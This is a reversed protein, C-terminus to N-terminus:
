RRSKIVQAPVGAVVSYPPVDKTVVSGAAIVSGKGITVGALIVSNSAIWCDDQVVISGKKVGQDKITQVASDFVHNEAYFSVRPSVMVNNGITIMGSCGVYSYPGINSHNGVVLGDGINGGYLNGPRIIAYKGISVRDGFHIGNKCIGNIEAGDEIIFQKGARIHRPYIVRVGRGALVFGKSSGLRFKLLLGRCFFFFLYFFTLWIDYRKWDKGFRDGISTFRSIM